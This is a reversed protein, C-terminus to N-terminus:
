HKVGDFHCDFILFIVELRLLLCTRETQVLDYSGLDILRSLFPANVFNLNFGRLSARILFWRLQHLLCLVRLDSYLVDIEEPLASYGDVKVVHRVM